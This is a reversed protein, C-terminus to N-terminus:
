CTGEGRHDVRAGPKLARLARVLETLGDVAANFLARGTSESAATPDGLVGHPTVASWYQTIVLPTGAPVLGRVGETEPGAKAQDMQVATPDVALYMSTEVLDAHGSLTANRPLVDRKKDRFTPLHFFAIAACLVDPHNLAVERTAMEVGANNGGHGNVVLIRPFGYHVLNTLVDVLVRVYTPESISLGGPFDIHHASVGYALGPLVLIEEPMVRGVRYCVEECLRADTDLPLHRGHGELSGVPLVPLREEAVARNVEPWTLRGYM